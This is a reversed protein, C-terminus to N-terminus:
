LEYNMIGLQQVCLRRSKGAQLKEALMRHARHLRSRVTGVPCGLANAADAYDVEHLDCLVVVERYHAPLAVVAARLREVREQGLLDALPNDGTSQAAAGEVIGEEGLPAEQLPVSSRSTELRRLVHNRAIGYLYAVLSGRNQDYNGADRILTLFAEQTVDEAIARSGSMQLAFRFIAGQRRRYLATFAAEEGALMLRLLEEDSREPLEMSTRKDGTM